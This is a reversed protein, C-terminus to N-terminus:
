NLFTEHWRVGHRENIELERLVCDTTHFWSSAPLCIHLEVETYPVLSPSKDRNNWKIRVVVRHSPCYGMKYIPFSLNISLFYEYVPLAQTREAVGCPTSYFLFPCMLSSQIQDKGPSTAHLRTREPSASHHSWSCSGTLCVTMLAFLQIVWLWETRWKWHLIWYIVLSIWCKM